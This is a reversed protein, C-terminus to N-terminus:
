AALIPAGEGDKVVVLHDVVAEITHNKYRDLEIEEDVDHVEGNVRVRVFGAKRVDEFIGKHEGKRAQIM